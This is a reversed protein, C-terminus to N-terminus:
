KPLKNTPKQEGFFGKFDEFADMAMGLIEDKFAIFVGAVVMVIVLIIVISIFNTDGREDTRLRNAARKSKNALASAKEKIKSM